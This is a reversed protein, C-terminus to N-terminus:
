AEVEQYPGALYEVTREVSHTSFLSARTAATRSGEALVCREHGEALGEVLFDAVNNALPEEDAGYFQVAHERVIPTM